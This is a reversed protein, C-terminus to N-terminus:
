QCLDLSQKRCLMVLVGFLEQLGDPEVDRYAGIGCGKDFLEDCTCM